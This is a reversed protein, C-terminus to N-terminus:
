GARCSIIRTSFDGLSYRDTKAIFSIEPQTHKDSISGIMAPVAIILKRTIQRTQTAAAAATATKRSFM